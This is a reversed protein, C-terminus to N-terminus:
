AQSWDASLVETQKLVWRTAEAQLDPPFRHKQLM